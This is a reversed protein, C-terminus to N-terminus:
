HNLFAVSYVFLFWTFAIRNASVSPPDVALDCRMGSSPLIIPSLLVRPVVFCLIIPALLDGQIQPLM